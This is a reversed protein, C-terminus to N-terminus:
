EMKELWHTNKNKEVILQRGEGGVIFTSNKTDKTFRKGRMSKMNKKSVEISSLSGIVRISKEWPNYNNKEYTEATVKKVIENITDIVKLYNESSLCYIEIHFDYKLLAKKISKRLIKIERKNSYKRKFM